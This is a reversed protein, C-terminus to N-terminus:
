ERERWWDWCGVSGVVVKEKNENIKAVDHRTNIFKENFFQKAFLPMTIMPIGAGYKGVLYKIIDDSKYMVVGM